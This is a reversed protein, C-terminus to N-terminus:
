VKWSGFPRLAPLVMCAPPKKLLDNFPIIIDRTANATRGARRSRFEKALVELVPTM